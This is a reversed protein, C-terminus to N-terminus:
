SAAVPRLHQAKFLRGKEAGLVLLLAVVGLVAFGVTM